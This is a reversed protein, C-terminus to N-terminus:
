KWDNSPICIAKKTKIVARSVYSVIAYLNHYVASINVATRKINISILRSGCAHLSIYFVILIRVSNGGNEVVSNKEKARSLSFLEPFHKFLTQKVTM